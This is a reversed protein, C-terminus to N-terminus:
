DRDFDPRWVLRYKSFSSDVTQALARNCLICRFRMKEQPRNKEKVPDYIAGCECMVKSISSTLVDHRWLPAAKERPDSRIPQM